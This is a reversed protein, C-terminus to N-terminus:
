RGHMNRVKSSAWIYINQHGHKGINLYIPVYNPGFNFELNTVAEHTANRVKSSLWTQGYRGLTKM